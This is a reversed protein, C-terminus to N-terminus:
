RFWGRKAPYQIQIPHKGEYMSKIENLFDRHTKDYFNLHETWNEKFVPLVLRLVEEDKVYTMLEHFSKNLDSKVNRFREVRNRFEENLNTKHVDGGSTLLYKGAEVYGFIRDNEQLFYRYDAEFRHVLAVLNFETM